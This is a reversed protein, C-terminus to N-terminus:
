EAIAWDSVSNGVLWDKASMRKKGELQLEHIVVIGDACHVRITQKDSSLKNKNNQDNSIARDIDELTTQFLKVQKIEGKANVWRTWAAPYPSLGCILQHIERAPKTWDIQTNERFLKPAPRMPSDKFQTQPIPKVTGTEIARITSVVLEGGTVMM